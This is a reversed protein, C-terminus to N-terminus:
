AAGTPGALCLPSLPFSVGRRWGGGTGCLVSGDKRRRRRGGGPTEEGEREGAVRRSCRERTRRHVSRCYGRAAGRRVVAFTPAAALAAPAAVDLPKWTRAAEGGRLAASVGSSPPGAPAAASNGGRGSLGM